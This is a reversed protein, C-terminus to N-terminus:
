QKSELLTARFELEAVPDGGAAEVRAAADILRPNEMLLQRAWWKREKETQPKGDYIESATMIGGELYPLLYLASLGRKNNILDNCISQHQGIKAALAKKTMEHKALYDKAKRIFASQIRSLDICKMTRM